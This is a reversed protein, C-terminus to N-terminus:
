RGRELWGRLIVAAAVADREGGAAPKRRSTPRVEALVDDAEVSTLGEDVLEVPLKLADALKRALRRAKKSGESEGGDLHVPLGVLVLTVGQEAALAQVRRVTAEYGENPIAGAPRALTRTPDSLALGIRKDGPDVALVRGPESQPEGTM